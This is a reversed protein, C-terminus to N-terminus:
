EEVGGFLAIITSVWCSLIAVYKYVHEYQTSNLIYLVVLAITGQMLAFNRSQKDKMNLLNLVILGCSAVAYGVTFFLEFQSCLTHMM